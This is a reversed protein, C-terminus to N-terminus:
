IVPPICKQTFDLFAQNAPELIIYIHNKKIYLQMTYPIIVHTWREWNKKHEHIICILRNSRTFTRLITTSRKLTRTCQQYQSICPNLKFIFWIRAILRTSILFIYIILRLVEQDFICTFVIEVLKISCIDIWVMIFISTKLIDNTNKKFNSKSLGQFSPVSNERISTTVRRYASKRVNLLIINYLICRTLFNYVQWFATYLLCYFM